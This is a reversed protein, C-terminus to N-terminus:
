ATGAGVLAARVADAVVDYSHRRAIEIGGDVLRRGISPDELLSITHAALEDASTGVLAHTNSRVELGSAATPTCVVPVGHAFAELLKIRTGTGRTLPVVACTARCYWPTVDGVPGVVEVADVERLGSIPGAPDHQGVLAVTAARGAEHVRPLVDRVLSIAAEVNPGYTL